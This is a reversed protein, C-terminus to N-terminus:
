KKPTNTQSVQRNSDSKDSKNTKAAPTKSKQSASESTRSQGGSEKRAQAEDAADKAKQFRIADQLSEQKLTTSYEEAWVAPAIAMLGVCLLTRLRM